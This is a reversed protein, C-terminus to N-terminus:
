YWIPLLKTAVIRLIHEVKPLFLTEFENFTFLVSSFNTLISGTTSTVVRARQPWESVSISAARSVTTSLESFEIRWRACFSFGGCGSKLIGESVIEMWISLFAVLLFAEAFLSNTAYVTRSMWNNKNLSGIIMSCFYNFTTKPQPCYGGLNDYGLLGAPQSDIAGSFIHNWCSSAM